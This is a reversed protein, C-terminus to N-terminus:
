RRWSSTAWGWGARTPSRPSRLAPRRRRRRRDGARAPEGPDTPSARDRRRADRAALLIKNPIIRRELDTLTIASSCRSSSWASRSRAGPRGLPRARDGRLAAGLGLETLPYRPRSRRAAAAARGRLLLWSLVPVNDYAAIQAGCAPCRSRPGVISEGRPVRHAVVRSSAAPSWGGSSPSRRPPPWGSLGRRHPHQHRGRAPDPLEPPRVHDPDSRRAHQENSASRSASGTASRSRTPANRHLGDDAAGQDM